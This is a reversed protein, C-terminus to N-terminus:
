AVASLVAHAGRLEAELEELAAPLVASRGRGVSLPEACGRWRLLIEGQAVTLGRLRDVSPLPVIGTGALREVVLAESRVPGEPGALPVRESPGELDPAGARRRIRALLAEERPLGWDTVALAHEVHLPRPTGEPDVRGEVDYRRNWDWYRYTVGRKGPLVRQPEVLTVGRGVAHATGADIAFFDGPAVPVFYLLRSVDDGRTLAARMRERDVGRRLGLYLGAGAEAELVYWSEPKGSEDEALGPYDDAPHIQVSLDLAADLLKVLLATSAGLASARHGLMAVPAAAIREALTGGGEVRAPFDPEVSIEWSEGICTPALGDNPLLGRKYHAHIRTGGWPTRHPPTVNDPRLLLPALDLHPM